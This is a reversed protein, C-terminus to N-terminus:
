GESGVVSSLGSFLSGAIAGGFEVMAVTGSPARTVPLAEDAERGAESLVVVVGTESVSRHSEDCSALPSLISGGDCKTFMSVSPSRRLSRRFDRRIFGM